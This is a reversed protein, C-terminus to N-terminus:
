RIADIEINVAGVKRAVDMINMVRGAPTRERAQILVTARPDAELSARLATELEAGDLKNGDVVAGGAPELTIEIVSGGPNWTLLAYITVGFLVALLIFRRTIM